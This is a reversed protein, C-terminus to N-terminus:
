GQLARCLLVLRNPVSGLIRSRVSHESSCSKFGSLSKDHDAAWPGMLWWWREKGSQQSAELVNQVSLGPIRKSDQQRLTGFITKLLRHYMNKIETFTGFINFGYLTIAPFHTYFSASSMWIALYPVLGKNSVHKYSLCVQLDCKYLKILM